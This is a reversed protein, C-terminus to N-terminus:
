LALEQLEIYEYYDSLMDELECLLCEHRKGMCYGNHTGEYLASIYDQLIDNIIFQKKCKKERALWDVFTLKKATPQETPNIILADDGGRDVQERLPKIKTKHSM